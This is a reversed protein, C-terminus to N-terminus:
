RFLDVPMYLVRKLDDVFRHGEISLRQFVSQKPRKREGIESEFQGVEFPYPKVTRFRQRHLWTAGIFVDLPQYIKMSQQLLALAAKPTILYAGGGMPDGLCQDLQFESDKFQVLERRVFENHEFIGHLRVMDYHRRCNVLEGLLVTLDVSDRVKIDSEFVLMMRNSSACEQWCSRHALFCGIESRSLDYGFRSLRKARDYCDILEYDAVIVGDVREFRLGSSGLWADMFAIREVENTSAIYRIDVSADM